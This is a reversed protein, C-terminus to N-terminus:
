TRSSYIDTVVGKDGCVIDILHLCCQGLLGQGDADVGVVHLELEVPITDEVVFATASIEVVGHEDSAPAGVM